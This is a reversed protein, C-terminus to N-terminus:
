NCTQLRYDTTTVESNCFTVLDSQEQFSPLRFIRQVLFSQSQHFIKNPGAPLVVSPLSHLGDGRLSISQPLFAQDFRALLLTIGHYWILDNFTVRYM